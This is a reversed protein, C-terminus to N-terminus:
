LDYLRTVVIVGHCGVSLSMSAHFSLGGWAIRLHILIGNQTAGGAGHTVAEKHLIKKTAAKLTTIDRPDVIIALPLDIVDEPEVQLRKYYGDCVFTFPADWSVGHCSFLDPGEEVIDRYLKLVEVEERLLKDKERRRERTERCHVRNAEQESCKSRVVCAKKAAPSTAMEKAATTPKTTATQQATVAPKAAQANTITTAITSVATAPVLDTKVMQPKEETIDPEMLIDALLTLPMKEMNM